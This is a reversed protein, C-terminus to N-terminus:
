KLLDGKDKFVGSDMLSQLFNEDLNLTKIKNALEDLEDDSLLSNQNIKQPNSVLHSHILQIPLYAALSQIYSELLSADTSYEKILNFFPHEKNVVFKIENEDIKSSWFPISNDMTNIMKGRGTYIRTGQKLVKDIIRHLEKKIINNPRATSKKVDINWLSDQNNPIDIKIRILKHAESIKALGWWTSHILLRGARYLYFGQTKTYGEKTGYVEYDYRSVKTHHPLIFPQVKVFDQENPLKFREMELRQTAINKENFPNFPEIYNNNLYIDIKPFEGELFRHFVLALHKRLSHLVDIFNTSDLNDINEWIVLTGSDFSQLKKFQSYANLEDISPSLIYWDDKEIIYELDWKLANIESGQKTVVTLKTCQSFSATKLGLGFRGLDNENRDNDPDKSGLRMANILEERNMGVGDDLITLMPSADNDSDEIYIEKANASICNDIIDAVAIDFNYGMDRLSKIFNKVNPRILNDIIFM